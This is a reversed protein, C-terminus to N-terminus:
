PVDQALFDHMASYRAEAEDPSAYSPWKDWGQKAARQIAQRAPLIKGDWVTPLTYTRGGPGEVTMAYLTSTSGNANNVVSKGKINGVHHEYLYLEQPTLGLSNIGGASPMDATPPLATELRASPGVPAGQGFGLLGSM